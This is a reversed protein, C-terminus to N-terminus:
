HSITAHQKNQIRHVKATVAMGVNIYWQNQMNTTALTFRISLSDICLALRQGLGFHFREGYGFIQM